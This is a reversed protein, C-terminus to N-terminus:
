FTAALGIGNVAGVLPVPMVNPVRVHKAAAVGYIMLGLGLAQAIGDLVLGINAVIRADDDFGPAQALFGLEVWPGFIPMYFGMPYLSSNANSLAGGVGAFYCVGFTVAGAVIPAMRPHTEEHWGPGEHTQASATSAVLLLAVSPLWRHM